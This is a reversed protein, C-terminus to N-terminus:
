WASATESDYKVCSRIRSEGHDTTQSALDKGATLWVEIEKAKKAVQAHKGGLQVFLRINNNYDRNTPIVVHM